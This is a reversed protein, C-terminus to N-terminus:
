GKPSGIVGKVLWNMAYLDKVTLRQGKKVRLKGSQDYLPGQFEYWKGSEIQAKKSAILAKTKADVRPGFSALKTFGSKMSGYWFQSKWTGNMAAKVEALYYPGWNYVAGTLWQKPAFKSADSDYGVWPIKKSEAYQGTAPSDVNQGLVDAGAADPVAGFRVDKMQRLVDTATPAATLPGAFEFTRGRWPVETAAAVRARCNRLDEATLVGGMQKVDAVINAAIEGEYLDRWGARALQELTDPLRGLRFYRLGGQYPPVPPLGDRLYIRASESYRRLISTSRM